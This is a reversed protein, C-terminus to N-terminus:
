KYYLAVCEELFTKGGQTIFKVNIYPGKLQRIITNNHNKKATKEFAQEIKSSMSQLLFKVFNLISVNNLESQLAHARFNLSCKFIVFYAKIKMKGAGVYIYNTRM